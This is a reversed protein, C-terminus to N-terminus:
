LKVRARSYILAACVDLFCSRWWQLGARCHHLLQVLWRAHTAMLEGDEKDDEATPSQEVRTRKSAIEEVINNNDYSDEAAFCPADDDIHIYSDRNTIGPLTSQQEPIVLEQELGASDESWKTEVNDLTGFRQKNCHNLKHM